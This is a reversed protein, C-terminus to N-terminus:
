QMALAFGQSISENNSGFIIDDVYVVLVLLKEKNTKMYLNSNTSGKKFTTLIIIGLKLLKKLGM